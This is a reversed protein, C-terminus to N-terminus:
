DGDNALDSTLDVILGASTGRRSRRGVLWDITGESLQPPPAGPQKRILAIRRSVARKVPVLRTATAQGSHTGCLTVDVGVQQPDTTLCIYTLTEASRQEFGVLHLTDKTATVFGKVPRRHLDFDFGFTGDGDEFIRLERERFKPAGTLESKNARELDTSELMYAQFLGRSTTILGHYRENRSLFRASHELFSPVVDFFTAELPEELVSAAYEELIARVQPSASQSKGGLFSKVARAQNADHRSELWESLMATTHGKLALRSKYRVAGASAQKAM